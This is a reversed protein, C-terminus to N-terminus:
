DYTAWMDLMEIFKRIVSYLDRGMRQQYKYMRYANVNRSRVLCRKM